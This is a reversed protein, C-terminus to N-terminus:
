ANRIEFRVTMEKWSEEAVGGRTAPKFRWKALARRKTADFFGPSDTSVLEVQKVKGDSGILVRVRAVGEIGERQERAPYDPQFNALHRQDLQALVLKPTPPAPPDYPISPGTGTGAPPVYIQEPVFIPTQAIPPLTTPATTIPTQQQRHQPAPDPAPPPPLPKEIPISIVTTPGPKETIVSIMPTLAVVTLLAIPVGVAFVAAFPRHGAGPSYSGRQLLSGGASAATASRPSLAASILPILTM